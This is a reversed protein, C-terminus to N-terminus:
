EESSEESTEESSDVPITVSGGSLRKSKPKLVYSNRIQTLGETEYTMNKDNFKFSFYVTGAKADAKAIIGSITTTGMNVYSFSDSYIYNDISDGASPTGGTVVSEDWNLYDNKLVSFQYKKQYYMNNGDFTFVSRLCDKTDYVPNGYKDSKNAGTKDTSVKIMKYNDSVTPNIEKAFADYYMNSGTVQPICSDMEIDMGKESIISLVYLETEKDIDSYLKYDYSTNNKYEATKKFEDMTAEDKVIYYPDASLKVTASIDDGPVSFDVSETGENIYALIVLKNSQMTVGTVENYVAQASNHVSVDAKAKKYSFVGASMFSAIATMLFALIAMAIILEILTFGSDSNRTKRKDM